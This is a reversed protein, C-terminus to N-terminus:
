IKKERGRGGKEDENEDTEEEGLAPWGRNFYLIKRVMRM